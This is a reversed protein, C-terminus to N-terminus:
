RACASSHAMVFMAVPWLPVIVVLAITARMGWHELYALLGFLAAAALACASGARLALCEDVMPSGTGHGSTLVFGALLMAIAVLLM